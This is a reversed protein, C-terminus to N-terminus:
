FIVWISSNLWLHGFYLNNLVWYIFASQWSISSVTHEPERKTVILDKRGGIWPVYRRWELGMFWRPASWRVQTVGRNSRSEFGGWHDPWWSKRDRDAQKPRIEYHSTDPCRRTAHVITLVDMHSRKSFSHVLSLYLSFINSLLNQCPEEDEIKM